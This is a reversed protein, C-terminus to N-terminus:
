SAPSDEDRLGGIVYATFFEYFQLRYIIREEDVRYFAYKFIDPHKTDAELVPTGHLVTRIQENVVDVKGAMEVLSLMNAHYVGFTGKFSEGFDLFYTAYAIAKMTTKFKRSKTPLVASERGRVTIPVAANKIQQVLRPSRRIVRVATASLRRAVENGGEMIVIMNRTYEVDGSNDNNHKKCAPVTVLDCPRPQPFFSRPPVHEKTLGEVNCM